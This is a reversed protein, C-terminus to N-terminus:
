ESRVRSARSRNRSPSTGSLRREAALARCSHARSSGEVVGEYSKRRPRRAARSASRAAILAARSMWTRGTPRSSFAPRRRRAARPAPGPPCGRGAARRGVGALPQPQEGLRRGQLRELEPQGFLDGVGVPPHLRHPRRQLDISRWDGGCASGESVISPDSAPAPVRPSPRPCPCPGPRPPRRAPPPRAPRSAPAPPRPKAPGPRGSGRTRPGATGRGPVPAGAPRTPRRPRAPRSCGFRRRGTRGTGTRAAPPVPRCWGAPACRRGRRSPPTRRLRRSRARGFRRPCPSRASRRRPFGRALPGSPGLTGPPAFPRLPRAPLRGVRRRFRVRHLEFQGLPAVVQQHLEVEQAALRLLADLLGVGGGVSRRRPRPHQAPLQRVLRGARFSLFSNALTECRQRYVISSRAARPGSFSRIAM